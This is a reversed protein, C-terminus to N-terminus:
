KQRRARLANIQLQIGDLQAKMASLQQSRSQQSLSFPNGGTMTPPFAQLGTPMSTNREVYNPSAIIPSSAPAYNPTSFNSSSKLMLGASQEGGFLPISVEKRAYIDGSFGLTLIGSTQTSIGRSSETRTIGGGVMPVVSIGTVISSEIKHPVDGPSYSISLPSLSFGTGIGGSAFYNIGQTSIRLGTSGSLGMYTGSIAIEVVKGDADRYVIPNDRGYSYSNLQQPDFLFQNPNDRATPDESLFQGRGGDYYRANLYSLSTAADYQEGIYKRREDFSGSKTDTRISGFPYYEITEAVNGSKDTVINTGGLHDPHVIYTSTAGGISDVTSILDSGAYIYKTTTAGSVSYLRSAFTTTGTTDNLTVRNGGYDYGYTSSATGNGAQTMRNRYDWAYLKSGYSTVNGNNDYSLATGNISTAAHPNAYGTSAYLYEGLASTAINGIKNYVWTQIYRVDALIFTSTASSWVGETTGADWFKIRWYYTTSSALTQGAYSLDPSRTGQTTSAMTTTGSDWYTSAFSSSTSVQIRYKGSTDGADPDNYIASFEPTTDTIDVPNTQSETLLSTPATPAGTSATHEVVLKPDASTGAVDAAVGAARVVKNGLWTPESNDFIGSMMFGFKSIGTANVNTLGAANLTFNNYTADDHTWSSVAIRSASVETSMTTTWNTYDGAALATNSTPNANTAVVSQNFAENQYDNHGAISYTASNVTQGSGIPSTDFLVVGLWTGQWRGSTTLNWTSIINDIKTQDDVASTGTGGRMSSWVEDVPTRGVSGDVSTSEPSANPYFTSTTNGIKGTVIRENTHKEQKVKITHELSQLLAEKPDERLHREHVAGKDDTWTRVIDGTLDPVLIPPNFFRFRELDVTGDTGFGIQEGNKNWARAFVQIGGEIPDMGIIEIDYDTRATRAIYNLKAIEQGKITARDNASKNTLLSTIRSSSAHIGAGEGVGGLRGQILPPVSSSSTAIGGRVGGINPPSSSSTSDETSEYTQIGAQAPIVLSTTAQDRITQPFPTDAPRETTLDLIFIESPSLPPESSPTPALPSEQIPSANPSPSPISLDDGHAAAQSAALFAEEDLALLGIGGMGGIVTVTSTAGTLRYLDDYKYDYIIQTGTTTANANDILRTINGVADYEYLLDQLVFTGTISMTHEVVLKPDASTGAVDAAVGAARVVKNGLWTPESNDFIGSMMFGFKSIGTANVNTLGAANLTFNNYTADDHTWSSVAIRSASVETSMTTTWNTYDGAALATNSTPNANTAVVSQNFAENQYDNHGAISYTASNVTQGSGIPSTDFLVVGLWTGQWRGSTTLNWTSIINDIKTQDDVASTGTGGRMSSWVEDVPTRGVSGDVSTSEPSANPYFTSTTNGIKGTVIRENTHKEQKVKITHELSQLLAEKPDERLHREHVAGKDDTWTRVIDGTLDPVLIPPNFFRFRELDVTGDTGFGIQEGNKNWARAFVQIGGEIPDMGIIEIDYDTRATRAIYNLKAIEQGKITARDNASKNALLSEIRSPPTQIGAQAPIVSPSSSSVLIPEDASLISSTAFTSSGTLEMTQIGTKVPIVLSLPTTSASTSTAVAQSTLFAEEDLALAGIGGMGFTEGSSTATTTLINTLRYLRNADYSRKTQTGNGFNRYTVAGTPSYETNSVLNIATTTGNERKIATEMLGASNYTYSVLTNDPYTIGTLNGQRDRTYTTTYASSSITNRETKIRGLPDYTYNIGSATTTAGCLMGKGNDCTDYSYTIETGASDTYNETLPRNIDDHTYNVTQSKPDTTSAINGSDDYSFYWTGYTADGSAHLDEATLRRGLGDYTFNRINAQEDTITTLNKLYNYQYATIYTAAGNVEEVRVLNKYADNFLRKVKGNADTITTKGDDYASSTTGLATGVATVRDMPDYITTAFLTQSTVATTRSASTSFYPLSERHLKGRRDYQFDKVAYTNADEAETREQITRDLGDMYTYRETSTGADLYNTELIKRSGITDTYAYTAKTVSSSPTTVDPQKEETPRDLADYTTDFIYGHPNYTRKVKGSSYDYLFSSALNVPNTLTALHINDTDYTYTTTKDRPDKEQTVMGYSNFTKETDIWTAGSKWFERKTENGKTVSGHALSDYYFKTDKVTTSANNVVTEQSPLGMMPVTSSSAYTYTAGFIDTSSAIFSGDDSATVEGWEQKYILNGTSTNYRHTQAKDKHDADGDYTMETARALYVYNRQYDLATRDWANITKQYLNNSADYVEIRYPKGKKAIHDQYEGIASQTTSGQQHYFTKTIFGFPDTRTTTAFGAFERDYPGNFYYEGGGYTYTTTAIPSFGDNVGIAEVLDLNLPLRPNLLAGGSTFEPSGKYLISTTAGSSSRVISLIDAKTGDQIYIKKVAGTEISQILDPLGDGNVDAMRVGADYEPTSLVAYPINSTTYNTDHTWGTSDGDNLYFKKTASNEHLKVLDSLNDGNSDIIRVGRDEGNGGTFDPLTSTAYTLTANTWGTGNGNNILIRDDSSNGEHLQIIDSLGDGNIDMTRVGLEHSDPPDDGVQTVFWPLSSTAYNTDLTWGTNDGNNIFVQKQGTEEYSYVFDSLGDGNFDGIRIGRDEGSTTTFFPINSTAYSMQETWGTGNGNNIFIKKLSSGEYSQVLDPLGDGNVEMIRAGVDPSFIPLSSTSYSMAVTWGTGDGNNLYINKAPGTEFLQVLDSLGDGNVDVLQVGRNTHSADNAIFWPITSTAYNTDYTFSDRAREYTFQTPPLSITSGSSEDRGTETIVSLLSRIGNDTTTYALEYKHVWSGNVKSQIEYIRYRSAVSFGTATSSAVDTRSEKLFEVEFIGSDGPSRTYKIISPYIQGQDKTYEYTIANGNPDEVKQLMWRYIRTSDSPDDLRSLTSTGFTYIWGQKDTVKWWAHGVFQYARFAGNEVKAGYDETTTASEKRQIEDDFSSRFYFDSFLSEVGEKNVREIYPIDITWGFGAINVSEQNRSSYNLNLAPEVGKRGPPVKIPYSLTLAGSSEDAQVKLSANISHREDEYLAQNGGGGSLLELPPEKNDPKKSLAAPTAPKEQPSPQPRSEPTLSLSFPDVPESASSKENGTGDETNKVSNDSVSPAVQSTSPADTVSVSQAFIPTVPTIFFSALLTLVTLRAFIREFLKKM